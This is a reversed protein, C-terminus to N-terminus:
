LLGARAARENAKRIAARASTDTEQARRPRPAGEAALMQLTQTGRPTLDWCNRRGVKRKRALGRQLLEAGITSARAPTGIGAANMIDENSAGPQAAVARLFRVPQSDPEYDALTALSPVRELALLAEETVTELRGLLRWKDSTDGLRMVYGEARRLGDIAADLTYSDGDLVADLVLLHLSRITRRTAAADESELRALRSNLARLRPGARLRDDRDRWTKPTAM